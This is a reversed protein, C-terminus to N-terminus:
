LGEVIGGAVSSAELVLDDDDLADVDQRVRVSVVGGAGDEGAAADDAAVPAEGPIAGQILEQGDLIPEAVAREDGANRERDAAFM